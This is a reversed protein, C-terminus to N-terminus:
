FRYLKACAQRLDASLAAPLGSTTDLLQGDPAYGAGTVTLPRGPLCIGCVTMENQTLTGTKDTCIVSACGLTEVASLRKVLAHRHTMRQVGLGLALTVTPLLGEPVFAVIMGLAFIFSEAPGIGGLAVALGFFVLGIGVAIVTVVRTV